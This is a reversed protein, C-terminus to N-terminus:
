VGGAAGGYLFERTNKDVLIKLAQEQKIANKKIGNEEQFTIFEFNGRKFKEIYIEFLQIKLQSIKVRDIKM